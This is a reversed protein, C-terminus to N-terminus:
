WMSIAFSHSQASACIATKLLMWQQATIPQTEIHIGETAGIMPLVAPEKFVLVSFRYTRSCAM